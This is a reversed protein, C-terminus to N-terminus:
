RGGEKVGGERGGERGGSWGEGGERSGDSGRDMVGERGREGERWDEGGGTGGERRQDRM